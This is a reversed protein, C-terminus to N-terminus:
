RKILIAPAQLHKKGKTIWGPVVQYQSVDPIVILPSILIDISGHKQSLVELLGM